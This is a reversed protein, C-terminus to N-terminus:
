VKQQPKTYQLYMSVGKIGIKAWKHQSLVIKLKDLLERQEKTYEARSHSGNSYVIERIGSMTNLAHNYSIGCREATMAVLTYGLVTLFLSARTGNESNSFFPELHPKIHSFTKEM